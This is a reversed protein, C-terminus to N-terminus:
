GRPVLPPGPFRRPCTRALLAGQATLGLWRYAIETRAPAKTGGAV